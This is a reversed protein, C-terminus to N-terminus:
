KKQTFGFYGGSFLRLPDMYNYLLDAITFRSLM